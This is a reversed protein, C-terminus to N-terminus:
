AARWQYRREPRGTSVAASAETRHSVPLAPVRRQDDSITNEMSTTQQTSRSSDAPTGLRKPPQRKNPNRPANRQGHSRTHRDNGSRGTGQPGHANDRNEGRRTPVREPEGKSRRTEMVEHIEDTVIDGIVWAAALGLGFGVIGM